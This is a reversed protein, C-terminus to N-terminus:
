MEIILKIDEIQDAARTVAGRNEIYMIQGTYHEVEPHVGSVASVTGVNAGASTYVVDAAAFNFYGGESNAVPIHSIVTGNISVIRSVATGAVDSSSDRILDDPSLGSASSLTMQSYATMSAATSVTTSGNNFPDQVLGIRRFDNDTPFDGGGEGFEFRSNIIIYNGGLEQVPDAGHGIVPSAIVKIVGASGGGIGSIGAVDITARRYGSGTTTITVHTLGGGSVTVTARGATGDGDIVVATYTGNSYGSGAATVVAHSVGGDVANNEVDWQASSDDTGAAGLGGGTGTGDIETQAGLTKVPIFDNTVFKIVDSASISYMYKWVYGRGTGAGADATVVLATSSTGTPKVSSAVVAGSSDRGTRLCKYVNYEETMVYFRSDYINSASTATSTNTSSVDHQYEDYTTNTTWNYRVLGHTVDANPVKKLAIMDSWADLEEGTSNAPATPVADNPWAFSRGIFIYTSSASESFDEKFQKANHTRFKETIIAAM